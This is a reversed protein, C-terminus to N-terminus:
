KNTDEPGNVHGSNLVADIGTMSKLIQKLKVDIVNSAVQAFIM